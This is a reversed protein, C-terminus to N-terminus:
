VTVRVAVLAAPALVGAVRVTVTLAAEEERAAWKVLRTLPWVAAKVSVEAPLGVKQAQSKPSPWVLETCSGV